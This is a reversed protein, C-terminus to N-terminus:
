QSCNAILPELKELLELAITDDPYNPFRVSGNEAIRVSVMQRDAQVYAKLFRMREARVKAEQIEVNERTRQADVDRDVPTSLLVNSLDYGHIVVPLSPNGQLEIELCRLDVTRRMLDEGNHGHQEQYRNLMKRIETLPMSTYVLGPTDRLEFIPFHRPRIFCQDETEDSDPDTSLYTDRVLVVTDHKATYANFAPNPSDSSTVTTKLVPRDASSPAPEAVDFVISRGPNAQTGLQPTLPSPQFRVSNFVKAAM